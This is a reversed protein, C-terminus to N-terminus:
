SGHNIQSNQRIKPGFWDSIPDNKLLEPPEFNFTKGMSAFWSPQANEKTVINKAGGSKFDLPPRTNKSNIQIITDNLFDKQIRWKKFFLGM